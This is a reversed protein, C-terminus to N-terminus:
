ETPPEVAALAADMKRLHARGEPSMHYGERVAYRLEMVLAKLADREAKLAAIEADKECV